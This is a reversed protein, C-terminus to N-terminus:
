RAAAAAAAVRTLPGVQANSADMWAKDVRATATVVLEGGDRPLALTARFVTGPLQKGGWAPDRPGRREIAGEVRGEARKSQEAGHLVFGDTLAQGGQRLELRTEDVTFAGGVLWEVTVQPRPRLASSCVPGVLFALSIVLALNPAVVRPWVKREAEHREVSTFVVYAAAADLGTLILRINRPVHGDGRGGTTLVDVDTGLESAPPKKRTSAEVLFNPARHTVNNYVSKAVPYGGHTQVLLPTGSLRPLRWPRRRAPLPTDVQPRCAVASKHWSAGYAWDEM